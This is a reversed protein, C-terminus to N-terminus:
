AEQAVSLIDLKTDEANWVGGLYLTKGLVTTTPLTVGMARYQTDYTLARATGNDKIRIVIGHGDIATGTPNLLQCAAALATVKVLDNAFTPTVTAASVISQVKSVPRSCFQFEYTSLTANRVFWVWLTEGPITSAPLNAGTYVANWTIARATGNDKLAFGVLQGDAGEDGAGPANITPAASLATRAYIDNNRWNPTIDGSASSSITPSRKAMEVWSGYTSSAAVRFFQRGSASVALQIAATASIPWHLGAGVSTAPANTASAAYTFFMPEHTITANLDTLVVGYQEGIGAAVLDAAAGAGIAALFSAADLASVSNDANVRPFRIAGPNALTFFGAGVTTAGLAIRTGSADTFVPAVTFTQALAWTNAVSNLYTKVAAATSQATVGAQVVALLESGDLPAAAPFSSIAVDAM